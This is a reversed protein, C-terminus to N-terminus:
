PHFFFAVAMILYAALLQLGELWNTEGDEVVLNTILVSMVIAVLEFTNFVLNMKTGFFLSAIVLAPAVFIAIQTASGISVQLTLDMRNKLAVIVASAHEAANGIIAIFIVGVFLETWGFQSVLPKISGVLIESVFSVALTALLLIIISKKKSWRAEIKGVEGLYLHKHTYLSFWLGAIYVAIMAFAVFISLDQLTGFGVLPATQLFIAPIVLAIVYLMLSSSSIIAVTRNFEQKKYKFGGLFIAMGSVLLLNSIISGTISAKVVEILGARIAFIGIVLEPANGFTANLLGGLAPGSYVALEETAEGIFKALPVIAIAALFFVVTPQIPLYPAVLAVPVFVLLSLFLKNM